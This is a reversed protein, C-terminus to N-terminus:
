SCNKRFMYGVRIANIHNIVEDVLERSELTDMGIISYINERMDCDPHGLYNICASILDLVQKTRLEHRVM